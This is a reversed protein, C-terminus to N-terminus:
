KKFPFGLEELLVAAEQPNKATTVVTVELGHPNTADESSVEPFSLQEKFGITYNGNRDFAKSSIGQFDRVRPFTVRLMKEVFDYMRTGRLTVKLGVIQGERVKFNSISLRALTKLPKQGTIRSLSEEVRDIYAEDKIHKGVGVNIVVKELRPLAMPNSKGLREKLKPVVKTTYFEKFM